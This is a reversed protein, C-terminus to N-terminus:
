KFLEKLGDKPDQSLIALLRWGHSDLRFSAWKTTWYEGKENKTFVPGFTETMRATDEPSLSKRFPSETLYDIGAKTLESRFQFKAIAMPGIRTMSEVHVASITMIPIDVHQIGCAMRQSSSDETIVPFTKGFDTLKVKPKWDSKDVAIVGEYEALQMDTGMYLECDRPAETGTMFTGVYVHASLTLPPHVQKEILEKARGKSPGLCGCLSVALVGALLVATIQKIGKKKQVIMRQKELM